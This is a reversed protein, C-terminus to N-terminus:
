KVSMKNIRDSLKPQEFGLLTIGPHDNKFKKFEGYYYESNRLCYIKTLGSIFTDFAVYDLIRRERKDFVVFNLGRAMVVPNEDNISINVRLPKIMQYGMSYVNIKNGDIQGNIEIPQNVDIHEILLNGEDVIAVYSCRIKDHLKYDTGLAISLNTAIKETFLDSGCPTDYSALFVTFRKSAENLLEIYNEFNMESKLKEAFEETSSERVIIKARNKTVAESM